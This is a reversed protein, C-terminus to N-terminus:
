AADATAPQPALPSAPPSASMLSAVTRRAEAESTVAHWVMDDRRGAGDPCIAILKTGTRASLAIAQRAAEPTFRGAVLVACGACLTGETGRWEDAHCYSLPLIRAGPRPMVWAALPAVWDPDSGDHVDVLILVPVAHRLFRLGAEIHQHATARLGAVAAPDSRRRAAGALAYSRTAARLALFLPLARLGETEPSVDLYANFVANSLDSHGKLELDMLLFALDYLVDICGIDDSFEICDFLTPGGNICASIPWGCTATVADSKGQDRRRDLQPAVRGACGQLKRSAGSTRATWNTQSM